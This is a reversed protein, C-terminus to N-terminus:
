AHQGDDLAMAITLHQAPVVGADIDHIRLTAAAM